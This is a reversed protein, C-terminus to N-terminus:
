KLFVRTLLRERLESVMEETIEYKKMANEETIEYKKM